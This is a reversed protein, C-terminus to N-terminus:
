VSGRRHWVRYCKKKKAAVNFGAYITLALRVDPPQPLWLPMWPFRPGAREEPQSGCRGKDKLLPFFGFCVRSLFILLLSSAVKSYLARSRTLGPLRLNGGELRPRLRTVRPSPCAPAARGQHGPGARGPLLCTRLRRAARVTGEARGYRPPAARRSQGTAGTHPRRPASPWPPPCRWGSGWGGGAAAWGHPRGAARNSWASSRPSAACYAAPACGAGSPCRASSYWWRRWGWCWRGWRRSRRGARGACTGGPGARGRPRPRRARARKDSSCGHRLAGLRAQGQKGPRSPAAGLRARWTTVEAPANSERPRAQGRPRTREARGGHPFRKERRLFQERQLPRAYPPSPACSSPTQRVSTQFFLKFFSVSTHWLACALLLQWQWSCATATTLPLTKWRTLLISLSRTWTFHLVFQIETPYLM